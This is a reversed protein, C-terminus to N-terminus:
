LICFLYSFIINRQTQATYLLCDRLNFLLHYFFYQRHLLVSKTNLNLLDVLRRLACNDQSIITCLISQTIRYLSPCTYKHTMIVACTVNRFQFRRSRRNKPRGRKEKTDRGFRNWEAPYFVQGLTWLDRLSCARKTKKLEGNM